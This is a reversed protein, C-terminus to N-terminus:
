KVFFLLIENLSVDSFIYFYVSRLNIQNGEVNKKISVALISVSIECFYILQATSLEFLNLVM